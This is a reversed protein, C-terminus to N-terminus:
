KNENMRENKATIPKQQQAWAKELKQSYPSSELQQTLAECQQPKQQQVRSHQSLLQPVHAENSQLMHSRGPGPISGM